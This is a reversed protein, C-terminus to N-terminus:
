GCGKSGPACGSPGCGSKQQIVKNAAANLQNTTPKKTFTETIQGGVNIVATITTGNMSAIGIQSLFAKEASDDFDIEVITPKSTNRASATKCNSLVGEKDTYNKQSVVIFVPRKESLAFLVEDQKPAPVSKIIQEATFQVPQGGAVAVGRPSIVLIFPLPVTAIGFQNVLESNAANDRNLSFVLSNNLRANADKVIATAKEVDTADTGTIVLFIPKGDKKAKELEAATVAVPLEASGTVTSDIGEKNDKSDSKSNGCAILTMIFLLYPIQKFLSMNNKM